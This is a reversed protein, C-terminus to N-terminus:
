SDFMKLGTNIDKPPFPSADPTVFGTVMVSAEDLRMEDAKTMTWELAALNQKAQNITRAGPIPITGKARAWNVAVQSPAADYKGAIDKMVALLNEYAEPDEYLRTGIKSRPGSPLSDKRYKGTLFGLALPSYSLVKVDLEKCADLLGNELPWRYLLSMQIQNSYLNIGRSALKAHCAHMADIGYNSVGVAKVLGQDFADGLGEWYEENAWANPFHIQYLDLPQGLRKVSAACAKVVDGRKTRWPYAAFKSAIMVKDGEEKPAANRFKGLLEESRGLGYAEATDFFANKSVAYDFVEKLEDDKRPDYGWFLSDGWAWAGLGLPPLTLPSSSSSTTTAVAPSSAVAITSSIISTELFDRRSPTASLADCVHHCTAVFLLLLVVIM